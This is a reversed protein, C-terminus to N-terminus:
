WRRKHACREQGRQGACERMGRGAEAPTGSVMVVETGTVSVLGVEPTTVVTPLECNVTTGVEVLHTADRERVLCIWSTCLLVDFPAVWRRGRGQVNVGARVAKNVSTPPVRNPAHMANQGRQIVVLVQITSAGIHIDIAADTVTGGHGQKDSPGRDTGLRDFCTPRVEPNFFLSNNGWPFPKARRNLYEYAPAEPLKGGHQEREHEEHAQHEAEVNYVWAACVVVLVHILAHDAVAHGSM